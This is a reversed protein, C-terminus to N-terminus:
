KEERKKNLSFRPGPMAPALRVRRTYSRQVTQPSSLATNIANFTIDYESMGIFSSPVDWNLTCLADGSRSQTVCNLTPSGPLNALQTVVQVSIQGEINRSSSDRFSSDYVSFNYSNKQGMTLVATDVWSISPERLKNGILVDVTRPGSTNGFHSLAILGFKFLSRDPTLEYNRTDLTLKFIWLSPDIMSQSPDSNSNTVMHAASFQDSTSAVVMLRPRNNPTNSATPDKVVVQFERKEGENIPNKSLDDVSVISPDVNQRGIFVKISKVTSTVPVTQATLTFDLHAARTYESNVYGIPPTWKFSGAAADFVAGPFDRINTLQLDYGTNAILVRAGVKLEGPEGERFDAFDASDIRMVDAPLAKPRPDVKREPPVGDRVWDPQGDLPDQKMKQCGWLAVCLVTLGLVQKARANHFIRKRMKGEGEKGDGLGYSSFM